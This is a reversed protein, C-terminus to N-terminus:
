KKTKEKKEILNVEEKDLNYKKYLQKDIEPISKSWDIDSKDTFDQPPVNKWVGSSNNHTIKLTSLLTRCFKTKMYNICRQVERRSNFPGIELFTYTCATNPEGILFESLTEGFDGSGIAKPMFVKWKELKPGIIIKPDVYRVTRKNGAEM